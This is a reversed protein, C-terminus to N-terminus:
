LSNSSVATNIYSLANVCFLSPWKTIYIEWECAIRPKSFGVLVFRYLYFALSDTIVLLLVNLTLIVAGAALVAFAVAFVESQECVIGISILHSFGM